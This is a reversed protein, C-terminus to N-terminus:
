PLVFTALDELIDFSSSIQIEKGKPGFVLGRPGFFFDSKMPNIGPLTPPQRSHFKQPDTLHTAIGM